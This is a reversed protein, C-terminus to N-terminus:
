TFASLCAELFFLPEDLWPGLPPFAFPGFSELLYLSNASRRDGELVTSFFGALLTSADNLGRLTGM